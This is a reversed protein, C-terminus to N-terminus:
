RTDSVPRIAMSGHRDLLERLQPDELQTPSVPKAPQSTAVLAPPMVSHMQPALAVFSVFAVAAAAAGAYLWRPRRKAFRNSSGGQPVLTKSPSSQPFHVPESQLKETIASVREHHSALSASRMVDGILHWESWRSKLNEDAILHESIKAADAPHLGDDMFASLHEAEQSAGQDIKNQDM